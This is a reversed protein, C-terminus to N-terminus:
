SSASPRAKGCRPTSRTSRPRSARRASSSPRGTRRSGRGAVVSSKVPLTNGNFSPSPWSSRFTAALEKGAYQLTFSSTGRLRCAPSSSCARAARRGAARAAREGDGARRRQCPADQRLAELCPLRQQEAGDIVHHQRDRAPRHSNPPRASRSWRRAGSSARSGERHRLRAPAAEAPSWSRARCTSRARRLRDGPVPEASASRRRRASAAISSGRRRSRSTNARGPRRGPVPHDAAPQLPEAGAGWNRKFEDRVGAQRSEREEILNTM